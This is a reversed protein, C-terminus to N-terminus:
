VHARGIEMSIEMYKKVQEETKSEDDTFPVFSALIVCVTIILAMILAVPLGVAGVIAGVIKVIGARLLKAAAKAAARGAKGAMKAMKGSAQMGKKKIFHSTADKLPNSKKQNNPDNPNQSM